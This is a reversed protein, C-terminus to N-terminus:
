LESINIDLSVRKEETRAEKLKAAKVELPKSKSKMLNLVQENQDDMDEQEVKKQVFILREFRFNSINLGPLKGIWDNNNEPILQAVLFYKVQMM